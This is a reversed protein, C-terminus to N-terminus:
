TSGALELAATQQTIVHRAFDIHYLEYKSYTMNCSVAVPQCAEYVKKNPTLM